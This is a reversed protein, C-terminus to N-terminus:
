KQYPIKGVLSFVCIILAIFLVFLFWILVDSDCVFCGCRARSKDTGCIICGCRIDELDVEEQDKSTKKTNADHPSESRLMKYM